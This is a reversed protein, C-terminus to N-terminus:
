QIDSLCLVSAQIELLFQTAHKVRSFWGSQNSSWISPLCLAVTAVHWVRGVSQLVLELLGMQQLFCLLCRATTVNGEYLSEEGPREHDCPTYSYVSLFCHTNLLLM